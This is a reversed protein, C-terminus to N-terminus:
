DFRTWKYEPMEVQLSPLAAAFEAMHKQLTTNSAVGYSGPNLRKRPNAQRRKM